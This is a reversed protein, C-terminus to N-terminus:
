QFSWGCYHAAAAAWPTDSTLVHVHVHACWVWFATLTLEALAPRMCARGLARAGYRQLVAKISADPDLVYKQETLCVDQMRAHMLRPAATSSHCYRRPACAASCPRESPHSAGHLPAYAAQGLLAWRLVGGVSTVSMSHMARSAGHGGGVWM